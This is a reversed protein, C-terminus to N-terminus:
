QTSILDNSLQNCIVVKLTIYCNPVDANLVTHSSAFQTLHFILAGRMIRAEKGDNQWFNDFNTSIQLESLFLKACNKKLCTSTTDLRFCAKGCRGSNPRCWRHCGFCRTTFNRSIPGVRLLPCIAISPFVKLFPLTKLHSRFTSAM